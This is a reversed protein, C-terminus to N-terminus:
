FSLEAEHGACPHTFALKWAHLMQREPAGLAPDSAKKGGYLADGWLPHGLHRMHVRVQHTRGSFIRVAVLAFRGAEDAYLTRWASTAQKGSPLVAMRTKQTPHRGIPADIGGQPQAPVGQVLALYEKYVKHRAFLAALGLRSRENLAVLILGSTDKDLRHVIGPRFGDLAALQPFHALLRHALTGQERGPAPHVTLGAPKNLVALCDDQFLISLEGQEARLRPSQAAIGIDVRSGRALLQRPALVPLGDVLVAGECIRKKIKERSHGEAGLAKALFRDLREGADQAAVIFSRQEVAIKTM